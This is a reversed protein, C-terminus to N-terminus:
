KECFLYRIYILFGEFDEANNAEEIEFIIKFFLNWRFDKNIIELLKNGIKRTFDDNFFIEREFDIYKDFSIESKGITTLRNLVRLFNQSYEESIDNGNKM